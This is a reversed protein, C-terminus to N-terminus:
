VWDSERGMIVRLAHFRRKSRGLRDTGIATHLQRWHT